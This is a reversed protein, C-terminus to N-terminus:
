IDLNLQKLIFNCREDISLNGPIYVLNFGCKQYTDIHLKEFVLAEEFSITRASSNEIFGLNNFFMVNKNYINQSLCRDIEDLLTKSPKINLYKALAYTCFPSRDFFQLDNAADQQRQKQMAIIKDTFDYAEWPKSIGNSQETGIIDTAAEHIVSFGKTEFHLICSTKGSGPAGTFIYNNM